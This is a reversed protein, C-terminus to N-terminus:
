KRKQKAYQSIRDELTVKSTNKQGIDGKPPELPQSAKSISKSEKVMKEHLRGIESAQVYPDNIQYIRTLEQPHLKKDGYLFAAQNDM